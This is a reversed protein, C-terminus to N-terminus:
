SFIRQSQRTVSAVCGSSIPRLTKLNSAGGSSTGWWHYPQKLQKLSDLIWVRETLLNARFQHSFNVRRVSSQLAALQEDTFPVAGVLYAVDNNAVHNLSWRNPMAIGDPEAALCEQLALLSMLSQFAERADGRQAAVFARLELLTTVWRCRFVPRHLNRNEIDAITIPFRSQGGKSAAEDLKVFLHRQSDIFEGTAVLGPWETGPPPIFEESDGIIPFPQARDFFESTTEDFVARYLATCDKERALPPIAQIVEAYTTPEGAARIRAIEEEIRQSARWRIAVWYMPAISIVLLV